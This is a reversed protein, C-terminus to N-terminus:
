PGPIGPVPVPYAPTPQVDAPFPVYFPESGPPPPGPERPAGPPPAPPLGPYLPTGDPAYQQAGYPPAGPYPIPGIAPGGQNRLSPSEPTGRTVPLYNAYGPFGIGPNPRNDLGTGFGTNTILNRVPWNQSVDPGSGCGPQGGPGGKAGNIPLNDPYKYPDNGGLLAVDLIV